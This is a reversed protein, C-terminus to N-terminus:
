ASARPRRDAAGGNRPRADPGASCRRGGQDVQTRARDRRARRDGTGARACARSRAQRRHRRAHTRDFASAARDARRRTQRRLLAPGACAGGGACAASGLSLGGALGRHTRGRVANAAGGGSPARRRGRGCALPVALPRRRRAIRAIANRGSGPDGAGSGGFSAKPRRLLDHTRGLELREIVAILERIRDDLREVPVGERAAALLIARVEDMRPRVVDMLRAPAPDETLAEARAAFFEIRRKLEAAEAEPDAASTVKRLQGVVADLSDLLREDATEAAWRRARLPASSSAPALSAFLADDVGTTPNSAPPSPSELAAPPVFDALGRVTLDFTRAKGPGGCGAPDM